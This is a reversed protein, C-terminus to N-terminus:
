RQCEKASNEKRIRIKKARETEIINEINFLIKMLAPRPTRDPLETKNRNAIRIKTWVEEPSRIMTLRGEQELMRDVAGTKGRFISYVPVGLAAAERNMTGGGSVVLDSYWLLNLGDLVPSPVITKSDKFWDPHTSRFHQEQRRNRPLLVARVGPTQGLRSMLESLLIDSEPSHYHAEDAPPRITIVVEAEHLDLEDLITPDPEFTPVYVHEKIGPYYRVRFFKVPLKVGSLAEPVIMWKPRATPPDYAYEYDAIAITPIRLLNSLLIQSRAGHSLAIDPRHQHWFTMLQASRWFLGILKMIPNKGHHCGIKAVPLGKKSALECVQFASRATVLVRHGRRELEHIIPLFFPVHPTNDLDIWIRAGHRPPAQFKPTLGFFRKNGPQLPVATRWFRAIERPLAHWYQGSYKTQIYELFDAYLSVPYEEMSCDTGEFNMYDPHSNLLAMGGNDAIWDLKDKWIRIDNEQLIVFLCHDQPLTYPLELYSRSGSVNGAYFPFITGAGETQPEFPDTDFTSCGHEIDLEAMLCPNRLMSPSTFGVAAWERLYYSIKPEREFFGSPNKFLKGDHKLGHVGVEFGSDLLTARLERPTFYDEPVFYFASRFNLRKELAMLQACKNLGKESDVDHHLIVAFRKKEPWGKWNQPKKSASLDVPWIDRAAKRKHAAIVRRASIQVVRPIVPKALYFFDILKM